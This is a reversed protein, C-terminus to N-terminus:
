PLVETVTFAFPMPDTFAGFRDKGKAWYVCRARHSGQSEVRWQRAGTGDDLRTRKLDETGYEAGYVVRDCEPLGFHLGEWHTTEQGPEMSWLERAITKTAVELPETESLGSYFYHVRRDGCEDATYTDFVMEGSSNSDTYIRANVGCVGGQYASAGPTVGDIGLGDGIIGAAVPQGDIDVVLDDDWDVRVEVTSPSSSGDGGGGGAHDPKAFAAGDPALPTPASTESCGAALAVLGLVIFPVASGRKPDLM